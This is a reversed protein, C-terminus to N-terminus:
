SRLGYRRAVKYAEEKVPCADGDIYLVTMNAFDTASHEPGPRSRGM